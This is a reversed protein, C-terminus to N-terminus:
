KIIGGLADIMEKTVKKVDSEQYNMMFCDLIRM